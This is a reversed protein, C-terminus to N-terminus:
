AWRRRRWTPRSRDPRSHGRVRGRHHPVAPQLEPEPSGARGPRQRRLPVPQRLRRVADPLQHPQDVAAARRVPRQLRVRRHHRAPQHLRLHRGARVAHRGERRLTISKPDTSFNLDDIILGWFRGPIPVDTFLNFTPCSRSATPSRRRAEHRVAAAAHGRLALRRHRRLDPQRDPDLRARHHWQAARRASLRRYGLDDALDVTHLPGACAPPPVAPVFEDGNGINIDEERTVKYM